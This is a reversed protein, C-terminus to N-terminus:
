LGLESKGLWIFLEYVKLSPAIEYIDKGFGFTISDGSLVDEGLLEEPTQKKEDPHDRFYGDVQARVYRMEGVIGHKRIEQLEDVRTYFDDGLEERRTGGMLYERAYALPATESLEEIGDQFEKALRYTSMAFGVRRM